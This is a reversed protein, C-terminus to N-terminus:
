YCKIFITRGLGLNVVNSHRMYTLCAFPEAKVKEHVNEHIVGYFTIFLLIIADCKPVASEFDTCSLNKPASVSCVKFGSYLCM